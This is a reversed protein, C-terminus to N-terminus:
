CPMLLPDCQTHGRGQLNDMEDRWQQEQKKWDSRSMCQNVKKVLSGTVESRKCVIEDPKPMTRATPTASATTTSAPLRWVIFGSQTARIARGDMNRIPDMKAFSVMMECTENDLAAFGSSATVDCAGISGSPEVTLRFAVKGQEGRKLAGPPYHAAIFEGNQSARISQGNDPAAAAAAAVFSAFLSLCLTRLM